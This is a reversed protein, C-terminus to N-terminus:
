TAAGELWDVIRVTQREGLDAPNANVIIDGPALGELIERWTGRAAGAVVPRRRLRNDEDIVMVHSGQSSVAISGLPVALVESRREVVVDARALFGLRLPHLGPEIEVEVTVLRSPGTTAPLIRRIRGPVEPVDRLADIRVPLSMGPVLAAVDLESFGFRVVLTATDAITLLPQYQSVAEGPEALRETVVGDLTAYLEGYSVRTEWLQVEARTRELQSAAREVSASDVQGRAQLAELRALNAQEEQLAARVRRLEAQQERVDLRAVLQGARVSDGAEVELATLIGSSRSALRVSRLPEVTGSVTVSRSIDRLGVTYAQVPLSPRAASGPPPQAASEAGGQCGATLLLAALLGTVVGQTRRSTSAGTM